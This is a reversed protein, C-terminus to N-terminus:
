SRSTDALWWPNPLLSSQACRSGLPFSCASFMGPCQTEYGSDGREQGPTGEQRGLSDVQPDHVQLCSILSAARSFGWAPPPSLLHDGQSVLTVPLPPPPTLSLFVWASVLWRGLKGSKQM